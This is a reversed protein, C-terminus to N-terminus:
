EATAMAWNTGIQVDVRVHVRSLVQSAGWRLCAEVWVATDAAAEVTDELVLEDHVVNVLHATPHQHRSEWLRVLALKVLDAEVMQIPSNAYITGREREGVLRLRGLG